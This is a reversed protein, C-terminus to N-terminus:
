LEPELMEVGFSCTTFTFLTCILQNATVPTYSLSVASARKLRSAWKLGSEGIASIVAHRLAGQVRNM